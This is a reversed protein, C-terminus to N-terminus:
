NWTPRYMPRAQRRKRLEAPMAPSQTTKRKAPLLFAGSLPRDDRKVVAEERGRARWHCGRLLRAFLSRTRAPGAATAVHLSGVAAGGAGGAGGPDKAVHARRGPLRQWAHAGLPMSNLTLTRTGRSRGSAVPATSESDEGNPAAKRQQWGPKAWFKGRM